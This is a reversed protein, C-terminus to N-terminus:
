NYNSTYVKLDGAGGGQNMCWIYQGCGDWKNVMVGCPLIVHINTDSSKLYIYIILIVTITSVHWHYSIHYFGTVSM